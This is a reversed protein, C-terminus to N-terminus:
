KKVNKYQGKESNWILTGRNKLSKKEMKKQIRNHFIVFEKFTFRIVREYHICEDELKRTSHFREDVLKFFEEQVKIPIKFQKLKGLYFGNLEEKTETFLKIDIM